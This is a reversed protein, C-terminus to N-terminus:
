SHLGGPLFVESPQPDARIGWTGQPVPSLATRRGVPETGQQRSQLASCFADAVCPEERGTIVLESFGGSLEPNRWLALQFM